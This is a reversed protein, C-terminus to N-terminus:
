PQHLSWGALQLDILATNVAQFARERASQILNVGEDFAPDPASAKIPKGVHDGKDQYLGFGRM